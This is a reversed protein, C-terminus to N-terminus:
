DGLWLTSEDNGGEVEGLLQIHRDLPKGQGRPGLDRHVAAGLVHVPHCSSQSPQDGEGLGTAFHVHDYGSDVHSCLGVPIGFRCHQHM